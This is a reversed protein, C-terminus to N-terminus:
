NWNGSYKNAKKYNKMSEVSTPTAAKSYTDKSQHPLLHMHPHYEQEKDNIIFL